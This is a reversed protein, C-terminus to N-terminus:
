STKKRKRLSFLVLLLGSAISPIIGTLAPGLLYPRGQALFGMGFAAIANMAGHFLAPPWISGSREALWTCWSGFVICALCMAIVGTYPYGAYGTGYNYGMINVPTHWIGWIIGTIPYAWIRGAKEALRPLLFGRWGIEEGLAFFMNVFAAPIASSLMLASYQAATLSTMEEVASMSFDQRFIIFYAAAGIISLLAPSVCAIIYTRLNRRIGPRWSFAIAPAKTIFRVSIASVAPMWMLIATILMYATTGYLGKLDMIIWAAWPIAFTMILYIVIDM